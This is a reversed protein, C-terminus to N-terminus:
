NCLSYVLKGQQDKLLMILLISVLLRQGYRIYQLYKMQHNVHAMALSSFFFCVLTSDYVIVLDLLFLFSCVEGYIVWKSLLPYDRASGVPAFWSKCVEDKFEYMKLFKALLESREGKKWFSFFGSDKRGFSKENLAHNGCHSYFVCCAM